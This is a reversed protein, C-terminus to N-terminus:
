RRRRRIVALAGLAILGLTAPEPVPDGGGGAIWGYNNALFALDFVDVGGSLDYDATTWDVAAGTQYNNALASLDFVDVANDLNADGDHATWTTSTGVLSASTTYTVAVDYFGAVQAPTVAVNLPQPVTVNVATFTGTLSNATLLAANLLAPKFTQLM